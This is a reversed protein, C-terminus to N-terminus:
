RADGQATTKGNQPSLEAAYPRSINAGTADEARLEEQVSEVLGEPLGAVRVPVRLALLRRRLLPNQRFFAGVARQLLQLVSPGQTDADRYQRRVDIPWHEIDRWRHDDLMFGKISRAHLWGFPGSPKSVVILGPESRVGERAFEIAGDLDPRYELRYRLDHGFDFHISALGDAAPICLRPEARLTQGVMPLTKSQWGLWVDLPPLGLRWSVLAEAQESECLLARFGLSVAGGDALGYRTGEQSRLYRLPSNVLLTYQQFVLALAGFLPWRFQPCDLSAAEDWPDHMLVSVLRQGRLEEYIAQPRM